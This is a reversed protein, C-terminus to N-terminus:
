ISIKKQLNGCEAKEILTPPPTERFRVVPVTQHGLLIAKCARHAGDMISGDADLIIPFNLDAALIRKMHDVVLRATPTLGQFWGDRDLDIVSAPDLFEIPLEQSRQWLDEVTWIYKEAGVKRTHRGTM